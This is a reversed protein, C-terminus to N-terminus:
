AILKHKIAYYTLESSTRMRMKRLVKMRYSTITKASLSLENAIQENAQGQSLRLFVQFERETLKRHPENLLDGSLSAAMLSTVEKNLYTRGSAVVKIATVIEEPPCDKSLYGAAGKRIMAVGYAEAAHGSLILVAPADKRCIIHAMADIGSHGPMEMDLLLVDMPIQRALEMADRGNSAEGVVSLDATGLFENLARRTIAHDDVIGVRIPRVPGLHPESV